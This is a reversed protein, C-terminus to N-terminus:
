PHSTVDYGNQELIATIVPQINKISQPHPQTPINPSTEGYPSLHLPLTRELAFIHHSRTPVIAVLRPAPFLLNALFLPNTEPGFGPEVLAYAASQAVAMTLIRHINRALNGPPLNIQQHLSDHGVSFIATCQSFVFDENWGQFAHMANIPGAMSALPKGAHSVQLGVRPAHLALATASSPTTKPDHFVGDHLHWVRAQTTDSSQTASIDYPPPAKRHSTTQSLLAPRRQNIPTRANRQHLYDIESCLDLLHAPFDPFQSLTAIDACPLAILSAYGM